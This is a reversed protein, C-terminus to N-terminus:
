FPPRRWDRRPPAYRSHGIPATHATQRRPRCNGCATCRERAAPDGFYRLITARLCDRSEAYAVMRRLKKHELRGGGRLKKRISPWRATPGANARSPQRDSVRADRRGRLALAADRRGAPRRPWRTRDGPLLGRGFRSHGHPRRGRRRSSRHGHRVCQHRLRRPLPRRRVCGSRAHTGRRTLGPTIRPPTRYGAAEAREAAAEATRRTAAYVLARRDGVLRPLVSISRTTAQRGARGAARHESSRLRRGARAAARPGLLAVIDDRVEPTATATFAAIPPRGALGDSRVALEGRRRRLDATTPGSITAGSALRLASRRHRFARDARSAAVGHLRRIRLARARCLAAAAAAISGRALAERRATPRLMSHLAASRIGRRNLEDVQDKMLSILPSVVLTTGPLMVAPLQFGLSKGAGTPMVALVDRGSLVGSVLLEQGARFSQHKFHARLTALPDM